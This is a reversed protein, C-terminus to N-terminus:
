KSKSRATSTRRRRGPFSNSDGCQIDAVVAASQRRGVDRHIDPLGLSAFTGAPIQFSWPADEPSLQDSIITTLVPPSPLATLVPVEPAADSTPKFVQVGVVKSDPGGM